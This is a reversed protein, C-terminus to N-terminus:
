SPTCSRKRRTWAVYLLHAGRANDGTAKYHAYGSAPGRLCAGDARGCADGRRATWGNSFNHWPVIVGPIATRRNTCTMVRRRRPNRCPAKEQARAQELLRPVLIVFRIRTRRSTFSKLLPPCPPRMPIASWLRPALAERTVDYPTLLGADAHFPAIWKRWIDPFDERFAMFLPMNRRESTRRAAAWDELAQESLPILPLLMQRGSLFTWFALDNRPSDLFTLLATIQEVLPHEALLFSNDTVVPIGEEM